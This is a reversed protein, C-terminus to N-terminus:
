THTDHIHIPTHLPTDYTTIHRHANTNVYIHIYM